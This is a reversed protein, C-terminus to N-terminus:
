SLKSNTANRLSQGIRISRNGHVARRKCPPWVAAEKYVVSYLVSVRSTVETISSCVVTNRCTGERWCVRVREKSPQIFPVEPITWIALFQHHHRVVLCCPVSAGLGVDWEYSPEVRLWVLKSCVRRWDLRLHSLLGPWCRSAFRLSVIVWFAPM